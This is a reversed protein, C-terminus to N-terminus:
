LEKVDQYYSKRYLSYGYSFYNKRGFDNAFPLFGQPPQMMQSFCCFLHFCMNQHDKTKLRNCFGPQQKALRKECIGSYACVPLPNAFM